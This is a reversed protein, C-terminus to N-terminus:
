NIYFEKTRRYLPLIWGARFGVQMDLRQAKDSAMTDYQYGRLGKTLGENCEFGAYFNALRNESLFLYGVFQTFALGGSLRDYGKKLDGRLQPINKGVDYINVKHQMYGVGVMVLPGCNKNPNWFPLIKGFTAYFNLGRENIRLRGPAGDNATITGEPTELNSVTNEKVKKGFFYSGELGFIWNKRTKFMVPIGASMTNGYRQQLDGMALQASLHLGTLPIAYCSDKLNQSKGTLCVIVCCWLATVKIWKM